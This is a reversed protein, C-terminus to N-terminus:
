RAFTLRKLTEADPAEVILAIESAAADSEIGFPRPDPGLNVIM